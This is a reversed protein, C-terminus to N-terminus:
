PRSGTHQADLCSVINRSRRQTFSEDLPFKAKGPRFIVSSSM